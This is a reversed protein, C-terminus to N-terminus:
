TNSWGELVCEIKSIVTNWPTTDEIENGFWVGLMRVAEGGERIKVCVPIAKSDPSTQLSEIVRTRYEKSGIPIVETKSSNFKAGSVKCWEELIEELENFSDNKSLYV